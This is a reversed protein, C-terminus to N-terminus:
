RSNLSITVNQQAKECIEEMTFRDIAWWEQRDAYSVDDYGGLELLRRIMSNHILGNSTLSHMRCYTILEGDTM